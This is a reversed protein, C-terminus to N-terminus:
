TGENLGYPIYSPVKGNVLQMVLPIQTETQIESVSLITVAQADISIDLSIKIMTNNIGYAESTINIKGTVDNILQMKVPISPGMNSIMPIGSLSGIPIQYFIGHEYFVQNTIPDEKGDQAALLSEDITNLASYLVQNLQYSDYNISIINGNEDLVPNIFSDADYEMDHLVEKAINNIAFSVHQKAIAELRPQMFINFCRIGYFSFLILLLFIVKGM